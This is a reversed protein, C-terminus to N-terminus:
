KFTLIEKLSYQTGFKFVLGLSVSETEMAAVSDLDPNWLYCGRRM